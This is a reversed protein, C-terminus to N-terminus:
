IDSVITGQAIGTNPAALPLSDHMTEDAM